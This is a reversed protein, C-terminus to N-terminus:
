GLVDAALHLFVAGQAALATLRTAEDVLHAAAGGLTLLWLRKKVLVERNRYNRGSSRPWRGPPIQIGSMFRSTEIHAIATAPPIQVGVVASAAKPNCSKSMVNM